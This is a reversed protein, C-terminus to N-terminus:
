VSTGLESGKRLGLEAGGGGPGNVQGQEVVSVPVVVLACVQREQLERPLIGLPLKKQYLKRGM